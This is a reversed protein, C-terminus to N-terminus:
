LQSRPDFSQDARKPLKVMSWALKQGDVRSQESIKGAFSDRIQVAVRTRSDPFLREM